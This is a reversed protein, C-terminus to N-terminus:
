AWFLITLWFNEGEEFHILEHKYIGVKGKNDMFSSNTWKELIM